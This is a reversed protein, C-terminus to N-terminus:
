ILLVPVIINVANSIKIIISLQPAEAGKNNSKKYICTNHTIDIWDVPCTLGNLPEVVTFDNSRGAAYALGKNTIMETVNEIVQWHM